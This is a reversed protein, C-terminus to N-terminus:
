WLYEYYDYKIEECKSGRWKMYIYHKTDKIDQIFFAQTFCDESKSSIYYHIDIDCLSKAVENYKKIDQESYKEINESDFNDSEHVRSAEASSYILYDSLGSYEGLAKPESKEQKKMSSEDGEDFVGLFASELEVFNKDFYMELIYNEYKKAYEINSKTKNITKYFGKTNVDISASETKGGCGCILCSALVISSVVRQKIKM